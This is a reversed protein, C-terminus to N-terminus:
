FEVSLGATFGYVGNGVIGSGRLSVGEIGSIVDRDVLEVGGGLEVFFDFGLDDGQGPLVTTSAFGIWRVERGFVSLGTPGDAEARATILSFTNTGELVPHSADFSDAIFQTFRAKGALNIDGEFTQLTEVEIAAGFLLSDITVDVLVGRAANEFVFVDVAGGNIEGDNDIRSYGVLAIPRVVTGAAVPVEVGVGGLASYVHYDVDIGVPGEIGDVFIDQDADLYSFTGEVYPSVGWGVDLTANPSIKYTNIRVDAGEDEEVYFTAATIGPASGFIGIAQFGQAIDSRRADEILEQRAALIAEALERALDEEATQAAAPAALAGVIAALGLVAMPRHPRM